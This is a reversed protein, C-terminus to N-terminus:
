HKKQKLISCQRNWSKRIFLLYLESRRFYYFLVAIMQTVAYQSVCLCTFYKHYISISDIKSNVKSHIANPTLRTWNDDTEIVHKRDSRKGFRVDYRKLYSLWSFVFIIRTWCITHRFYFVRNHNKLKWSCSVFHFIINNEYKEVKSNM